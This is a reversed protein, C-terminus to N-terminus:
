SEHTRADSLSLEVFTELFTGLLREVLDVLREGLEIRPRVAGTLPASLRNPFLAQPRTGPRREADVVLPEGIAPLAHAIGGSLARGVHADAWRDVVRVDGIQLVEQRRAEAQVAQHAAVQPGGRGLVARPRQM